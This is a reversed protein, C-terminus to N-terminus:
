VPSTSLYGKIAQKICHVLDTHLVDSPLAGDDGMGFRLVGDPVLDHLAEDPLSVQFCDPQTAAKWNAVLAAHREGRFEFDITFIRAM